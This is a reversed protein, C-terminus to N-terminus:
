KKNLIEFTNNTYIIVINKISNVNTFESLEEMKVENKSIQDSPNNHKIDPMDFSEIESKKAIIKKTEKPQNFLDQEIIPNTKFLTDKIMLGDGMLLWNANIEGFIKLIKQMFDFSPKNRGSLIHSISSRQVGIKDAFQAPSLAYHEMIKIIRNEM